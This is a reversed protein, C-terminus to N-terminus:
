QWNAFIGDFVVAVVDLGGHFTQQLALVAVQSLQLFFMGTSCYQM